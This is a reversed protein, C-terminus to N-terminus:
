SKRTVKIGAAERDWTAASNGRERLEFKKVRMSHTKPVASLMEVYRPLMFYPIRTTLFAILHAPDFRSMDRPVVFVKVEDEGFEGPVAVCAAELVDPYALVEREVEFSSINEGRRRIADKKRDAFFHNGEEDCYLLDGTHFWGNRWARATEEPRGWYGLNLEWPLESRVILEGVHGTPVPIDHDDVLRVQFGEQVKGCSTPHKIEGRNVLPSPMESMGFGTFLEELEFRAKFASPNGVMPACFVVRLPNDADDSKRPSRELFVPITGIMLSVTAKVERAVDLYRSGSFGSRLAIRAGMAVMSYCMNVGAKHFMPYDLLMTDSTGIKGGWVFIGRYNHFYPTIVGKSPGTTGSTYMIMHTDWPEIPEVDELGTAHSIGLLAPDVITLELDMDKLREALDPDTIIHRAKSDRCIHELMEGKYATNVPVLVAGLFTIGWWGRFWDQGNPLFLLVNEGRKIGMESLSNAARAGEHWAKGYTWSKGDEFQLCEKDPQSKAYRELLYRIVVESRNPLFGMTM